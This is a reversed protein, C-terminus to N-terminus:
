PRRIHRNGRHPTRISPAFHSYGMSETLAVLTDAEEPSLVNDITFAIAPKGLLDLGLDIDNKVAVHKPSALTMAEPHVSITHFPTATSEGMPGSGVVTSLVRHQFEASQEVVLGSM